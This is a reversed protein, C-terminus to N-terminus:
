DAGGIGEPLLARFHGGLNVHVLSVNSSEPTGFNPAFHCGAILAALAIISLFKVIKM